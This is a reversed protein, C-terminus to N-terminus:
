SRWLRIVFALHVASNWNPLPLCSLFIVVGQSHFWWLMLGIPHWHPGVQYCEGWGAGICFGTAFSYFQPLWCSNSLSKTVSSWASLDCLVVVWHGIHCIRLLHLQRNRHIEFGLKVVYLLVNGSNKQITCLGLVNFKQNIIIAIM